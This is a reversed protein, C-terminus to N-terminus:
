TSENIFKQISRKQLLFVFLCVFLFCAFLCVVVFFLLFLFLVFVLRKETMM